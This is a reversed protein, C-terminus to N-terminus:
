ATIFMAPSWCLIFCHQSCRKGDNLVFAILQENQCLALCSDGWLLIIGIGDGTRNGCSAGVRKIFTCDGVSLGPMCGVTREDQGMHWHVTCPPSRLSVTGASQKVRHDRRKGTHRTEGQYLVACREQGRKRAGDRYLCRHKIRARPGSVCV